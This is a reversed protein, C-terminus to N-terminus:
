CAWTRVAAAPTEATLTAIARLGQPCVATTAAFAVAATTNPARRLPAPRSSILAAPMTRLNQRCDHM